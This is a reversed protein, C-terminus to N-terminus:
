AESYDVTTSHLWEHDVKATLRLCSTTLNGKFTLYPNDLVTTPYILYPDGDCDVYTTCTVEGGLGSCSAGSWDRADATPCHRQQFLWVRRDGGSTKGLHATGSTAFAWSLTSVPKDKWATCTPSAGEVRKCDRTRIKFQYLALDGIRADIEPITMPPGSCSAPDFPDNTSPPTTPVYGNTRAYALLKTFTKLGVFPVHDLEVLTDFADDDATGHMGDPGARHKLIQATANGALGVDYRFMDHDAENALDLIGHADPSGEAIGFADAKDDGIVDEDRPDGDDETETCATLLLSTLLVFTKM